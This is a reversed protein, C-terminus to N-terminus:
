PSEQTAFPASPLLYRKNAEREMADVESAFATAGYANFQWWKAGEVFIRRPDDKPLSGQLELTNTPTESRSVELKAVYDL